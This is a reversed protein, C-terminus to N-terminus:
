RCRCYARHRRAFDHIDDRRRGVAEMRAGMFSLTRGREVGYRDSVLSPGVRTRNSQRIVPQRHPRHFPRRARIRTDRM